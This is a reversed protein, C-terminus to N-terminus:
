NSVSVLASATKGNKTTVTIYASGPANATVTGNSSVSAVSNNSSKWSLTKDVEGTYSIMAAFNGTSGKKLSLSSPSLTVGSITGKAKVYVTRRAIASNGYSDKVSYTVYYTGVVQNNINYSTTVRSTINTGLADSASFGPEFYSDGVYMTVNVSGNRSKLKITPPTTIRKTTTTTTKKSTAYTSKRTTYSTTKRTTTSVSVKTTTTTQSTTTTEKEKVVVARKKTVKNGYSDEVTYIVKYKGTKSSDVDNEVLIKDTLDGDEKDSATAGEDVYKDGVYITITKKGKLKIVPKEDEVQEEEKYGSTKYVDGCMIYAEYTRSDDVIYAEVYGTILHLQPIKNSVINGGNTDLLEQFDIRTKEESLDMSNNDIYIPAEDRMKEELERCKSETILPEKNKNHIVISVIIIIILVLVAAGAIIMWRKIQFKNTQEEEQYDNYENEM